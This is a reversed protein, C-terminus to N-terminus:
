RTSRLYRRDDFTALCGPRYAVLIAVVMGTLTAEAFALMLAVAVLATGDVRLALPREILSWLATDAVLAACGAAGFAAVFIYIFVHAPLWREVARLVLASVAIASGAGILLEEALTSWATAGAAAAAVGAIAVGISALRAGFM